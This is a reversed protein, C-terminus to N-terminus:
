KVKVSKKGSWASYYTMKGVTKYARVRVYYTKGKKLSTLTAKVTKAQKVKLSMAKSFNSKLGYQVQYGSAEPRRMLTLTATKGKLTVKSVASKRPLINFTLTKTGTYEGTGKLTVTAAGVNKNNKYTHEYDTYPYLTKKGYKVTVAAKIAKGTYVQSKVTFKCMSLPVRIFFTVIKSGTYNGKGTVTVTAWGPKVNNKYSVTYDTGKKLTKDRYKVTLAPTLAKGTYVQDKVSFKCKSIKIKPTPTPTPTPETTPQATPETTPETTPTPKSVFMAEKGDESWKIEYNPDDSFFAGINGGAGLGYTFEYEKHATVGIKAFESLSGIVYIPIDSVPDCNCIRKPDNCEWNNVIQPSGSISFTGDYCVGGCGGRAYNDQINGNSITFSSKEDVFIGGGVGDAINGQICGGTMELDSECLLIGCAWGAKNDKIGGSKLQIKGYDSLIGGGQGASNQSINCNELMLVANGNTGWLNIGGGSTEARNKEITGGTIKINCKDYDTCAHIEVGGGYCGTNETISGGTMVFDADEVKVGGGYSSINNKITGGTMTLTGYHLFLGGGSTMYMGEDITTYIKENGGIVNARNGSIEGGSMTITADNACVGGGCELHCGNNPDELDNYADNNTIKGGKMEFTGNLWVGGGYSSQNGTIEGGSMVIKGNELEVGGGQATSFNNSIKGGSIVINGDPAGIGGGNFAKNDCVTGGKLTLSAGDDVYIGGGYTSTYGGTIKGGGVSDAVTLSGEVGVVYGDNKAAKLGRNLTHGALDLTLSKGSPILLGANGGGATLDETLTVTSHDAADNIKKQFASWAANVTKDGGGADEKGYDVNSYNLWPSDAGFQAVTSDYFEYRLGACVYPGGAEGTCGKLFLSYNCTDGADCNTLDVLYCRGDPMKLSNWMHPGQGTGYYMMGSVLVCGVGGDFTSLDCLYKFGKSYGECVVKTDPDGDFIWM